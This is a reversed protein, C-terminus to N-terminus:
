VSGAEAAERAVVPARLRRQRGKGRTWSTPADIKRTMGRELQKQKKGRWQRENQWERGEQRQQRKNRLEQTKQGAPQQM